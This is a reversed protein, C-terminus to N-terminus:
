CTFYPWVQDRSKKPSYNFWFEETRTQIVRVGEPMNQTPIKGEACAISMFKDLGDDDLWSDCYIINEKVAITKKSKTELFIPVSRELSETYAIVSGGNSLELPSDPRLSEVYSVKVDINPLSPPLPPTINFDKDRAGTRPGYIILSNLQGLEKKLSSPTFEKPCEKAM